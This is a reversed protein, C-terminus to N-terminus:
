ECCFNRFIEYGTLGVPLSSLVASPCSPIKTLFKVWIHHRPPRTGTLLRVGKFDAQFVANLKCFHFHFPFHYKPSSKALKKPWAQGIKQCRTACIHPVTIFAGFSVPFFLILILQFCFVQLWCVFTFCFRRRALLLSLSPSM